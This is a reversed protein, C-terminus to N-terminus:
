KFFDLSAREAFTPFDNLRSAIIWVSPLFDGHAFGMRHDPDAPGVVDAVVATFAAHDVGTSPPFNVFGSNERRVCLNVGVAAVNATHLHVKGDLIGFGFVNLLDGM